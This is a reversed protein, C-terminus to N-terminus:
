QPAEDTSGIVRDRYTSWRRLSAVADAPNFFAGTSTDVARVGLRDLIAAVCTAAPDGGRVHLAFSNVFEDAGCNVEISFGEGDITGWAPDSFDAFPVVNLIKQIIAARLGLPAPNFSDPIEDVTRAHAPFDQILLDWGM